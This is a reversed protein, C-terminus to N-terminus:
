KLKALFDEVEMAPMSTMRVSGRAGIEVSIRAMTENDTTEIINVFDYPGLVAWQGIVNAGMAAIEKNVESVRDPKEKLTKLGHDTLSSLVIYKPM